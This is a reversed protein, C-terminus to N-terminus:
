GFRIYYRVRSVLATFGSARPVTVTSRSDDEQYQYETPFGEVLGFTQIVPRGSADSRFGDSSISKVSMSKSAFESDYVGRSVLASCVFGLRFRPVSVDPPELRHSGIWSNGGGYRLPDSVDPIRLAECGRIGRGDSVCRAFLFVM